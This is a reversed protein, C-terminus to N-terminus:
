SSNIYLITHTFLYSVISAVRLGNELTTITIDDDNKFHLQPVVNQMQPINIPQSLDVNCLPAAEHTVPPQVKRLKDKNQLITRTFNRLKIPDIFGDDDDTNNRHTMQSSFLRKNLKAVVNQKAWQSTTAQNIIRKMKTKANHQNHKERSPSFLHIEEEHIQLL